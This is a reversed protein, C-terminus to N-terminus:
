NLVSATVDVAPDLENFLDVADQEIAMDVEPATKFSQRLGWKIIRVSLPEPVGQALERGVVPLVRVGRPRQRLFCESWEIRDLRQKLGGLWRVAM